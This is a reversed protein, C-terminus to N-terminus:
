IDFTSIKEARARKKFKKGISGSHDSLQESKMPKSRLPRGHNRMPKMIFTVSQCEFVKM